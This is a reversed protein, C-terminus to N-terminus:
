FLPSSDNSDCIETLLPRTNNPGKINDHTKPVKRGFFSQIGTQSKHSSKKSLSTDVSRQLNPDNRGLLSHANSLDNKSNCQRLLSTTSSQRPKTMMEARALSMHKPESQFSSMRKAPTTMLNALSFKTTGSGSKDRLPVPQFLRYRRNNNRSATTGNPAKETVNRSSPVGFCGIGDSDDFCPPRTSSKRSTNSSRM